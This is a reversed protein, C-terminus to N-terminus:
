FHAGRVGAPTWIRSPQFQSHAHSREEQGARYSTVEVGREKVARVLENLMSRDPVFYPTTIHISKQASALLMQFLLRARTAGGATPTSSVVLSPAGASQPSPTPFYDEGCLVDGCSELWNEAFTAQLSPVADGDVRVM